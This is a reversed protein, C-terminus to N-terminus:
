RRVAVSPRVAVPAILRYGRKIIPEIALDIV